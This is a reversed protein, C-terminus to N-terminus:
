TTSYKFHKNSKSLVLYVLKFSSVVSKSNCVISCKRISLLWNTYICEM